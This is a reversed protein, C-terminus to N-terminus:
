GYKKELDKLFKNTDILIIALREWSTPTILGEKELRNMEQISTVTVKEGMRTACDVM